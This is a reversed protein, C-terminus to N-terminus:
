LLRLRREPEQRLEETAQYSICVDPREAMGHIKCINDATLHICRIGAQKGQPM